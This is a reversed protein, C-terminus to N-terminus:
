RYSKDLPRTLFFVFTALISLGVDNAIAELFSDAFMLAPVVLLHLAAIFFYLCAREQEPAMMYLQESAPPAVKLGRALDLWGALAFNYVRVVKVEGDM